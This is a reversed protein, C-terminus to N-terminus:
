KSSTSHQIVAKSGVREKLWIREIIPYSAVIPLIVIAGLVGAVSGAVVLTILVILGSVQLRDGYIKPVILYNEIAHYAVYLAGTGLAAGPSVTLALLIAPIVAMFFGVIPLVDFVGALIALVLAAPVKFITLVIFTFISALLSTIAQGGTYAFIVESVGKATANLKEQNEKSFYALTWEYTRAGDVLLYISLILLLIGSAVAGVASEGASLLHKVWKEDALPNRFNKELLQRGGWSTPIQAVVKEKMEPLGKSLSQAQEVLPPVLLAIGATIVVILGSTIAFIALWRPCRRELYKVLPNLTVAILTALLLLLLFPWLLYLCYGVFAAVFVGLYTLWPIYLRRKEIELKIKKESM